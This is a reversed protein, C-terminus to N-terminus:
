LITAAVAEPLGCCADAGVFLLIPPNLIFDSGISWSGLM